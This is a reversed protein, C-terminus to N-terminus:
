PNVSPNECSDSFNEDSPKAQKEHDRASEWDCCFLFMDVPAPNHYQNNDMSNDDDSKESFNDYEEVEAISEQSANPADM